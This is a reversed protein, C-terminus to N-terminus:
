GTLAKRLRFRRVGPTELPELGGRQHRPLIPVQSRRTPLGVIGWLLGLGCGRVVPGLTPQVHVVSDDTIDVVVAVAVAAGSGLVVHHSPVIVSPDPAEDLFAWSLGTEDMTSLDIRLDVQSQRSSRWRRHAGVM